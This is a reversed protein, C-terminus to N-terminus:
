QQKQFQKLVDCRSVYDSVRTANQNRFKLLEGLARYQRSSPHLNKEYKTTEDNWEETIWPDGPLYAKAYLAKEKLQFSTSQKAIDLLETAKAMRDMEDTRLTDYYSKGYRTLYWADGYVSSQYYRVALDFARQCQQEGSLASFGNELQLMEQAFEIKQSKSIHYDKPDPDWGLNKKDAWPLAKYSRTAMYPVILQQQFYTLPVKNLYSIAKQWEGTRLYKTGLLDNLYNSDFHIHKALWQDLRTKPSMVYAAFEQLQNPRLLDIYQFFESSHDQSLNEESPGGWLFDSYSHSYAALFAASLQGRGKYKHVLLENTLRDYAHFFFPDDRTMKSDLWTLEEALFNDLSADAESREARIFLRVVRANDKIRETGAMDVAENALKLSANRNGFFWQLLAEASRWLAPNETKGDRVAQQALSCMQMAEAQSIDRIFLKGEGNGIGAKTDYAEQTNNVFDQLLFPLVPSNPDRQYEQRIAAASRGKYYVSYLSQLDNQEAFIRMGEAKRGAKTLAGAYINNMMEKYVTEIYKCATQEWFTINESHRNLLMNCRMLLLAHQSRLRTSLKSQAYSRVATLTKNREAIEEKSPYDWSYSIRDCCDIYKKLQQVYSVMLQDGKKQATEIIEDLNYGYEIAGEGYAIWNKRCTEQTRYQFEQEGMVNFLYYNHTGGGACAFAEAMSMCLLSIIIFRKM